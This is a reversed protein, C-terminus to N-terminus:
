LVRKKVSLLTVPIDTDNVFEHAKGVQCFSVVERADLNLYWECDEQHLHSAIKSHPMVFLLGITLQSDKYLTHTYVEGYEVVNKDLPTRIIMPCDGKM